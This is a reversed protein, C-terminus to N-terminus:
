REILWADSSTTVIGLLVTRADPSPRPNMLIRSDFTRVVQATGDLMVHLLAGGRITNTIAFLSRGDSSWAIDAVNKFGNLRVRRTAGGATSLLTVQDGADWDFDGYAITSGEPSVDWFTWAAKVDTVPALERRQGTAPDFVSFVVHSRHDHEDFRAEALVCSGDSKAPCRLDPFTHGGTGTVGPNLSWLQMTSTGLRTSIPMVQQAPGGGVPTRMIRAADPTGSMEVYVIWKGDATTQPSRIRGPGAVIAEPTEAATPQRFAQFAGSRNSIFLFSSGDRSWQSPWDAQTDTTLQKLEAGAGGAGVAYIDSQAFPKTLALRRGDASITLPAAEVVRLWQAVKAPQGVPMGEKPDLAVTWLSVTEEPSVSKAVYFLRGDSAFALSYVTTELLLRPDNGNLDRTEIRANAAGAVGRLYGIRTGGPLWHVSAVVEGQPARYLTRPSEGKSSALKIERSDGDTFVIQRGDPGAEAEWGDAVAQVAGTLVSISRIVPKEGVHSPGGALLRTGDQSWSL